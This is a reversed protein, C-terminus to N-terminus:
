RPVLREAGQGLLQALAQLELDLAEVLVEADGEDVYRVILALRQHHGVSDSDHVVTPYLLHSARGVQVVPGDVPEHCGEDSFRVKELARDDADLAIPDHYAEAAGGYLSKAMAGRLNACENGQRHARLFDLTRVTGACQLFRPHVCKRRHHAVDGEDPLRM